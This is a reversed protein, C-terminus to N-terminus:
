WGISQPEGNLTGGELLSKYCRMVVRYHFCGEMKTRADPCYGLMIILWEASPYHIYRISILLELNGKAVSLDCYFCCSLSPHGVWWPTQHLIDWDLWPQSGQKM